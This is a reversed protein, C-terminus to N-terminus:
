VTAARDRPLRAFQLTGVGGIEAKEFCTLPNPLLDTAPWFADDDCLFLTESVARTIGYAMKNRKSPRPISYIEVSTGVNYPIAQLAGKVLGRIKDLYVDTTVIIIERPANRYWTTLAEPFKYDPNITPLIVSVNRPKNYLSQDLM